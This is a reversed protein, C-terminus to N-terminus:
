QPRYIQHGEQQGGPELAKSCFVCQGQVVTRTRVSPAVNSYVCVGIPSGTCGAYGIVFSAVEAALGNTLEGYRKVVLDLLAAQHRRVDGMHLKIITRAASIAQLHAEPIKM